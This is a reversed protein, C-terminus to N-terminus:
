AMDGIRDFHWCAAVHSADGRAPALAPTDVCRADALPCRSRFRCGSPWDRFDPVTGDIIRLPVKRPGDLSPISGLLLRSYPHSPRMFLQEVPGSEVIRGGYLVCVRDAVDAVVGMDHTIIVIAMGTDRRLGKM